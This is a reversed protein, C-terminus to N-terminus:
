KRNHLWFAGVCVAGTAFSAFGIPLVNKEAWTRSDYLGLTSSSNLNSNIRGLRAIEEDKAEVEEPSLFGEKEKMKAIVEASSLFGEREKIFAVLDQLDEQQDLVIVCKPKNDGKQQTRKPTFTSFHGDDLQIVFVGDEGKKKEVADFNFIISHVPSSSSLAVPSPVRPSDRYVKIHQDMACCMFISMQMIILFPISKKIM